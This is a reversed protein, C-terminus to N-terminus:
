QGLGGSYVYTELEVMQNGPVGPKTWTVTVTVIKLTSSVDTVTLTGLGNPISALGSDVFNGSPPISAFATTRITQMQNDAIRLAIERYRGYKNLVVSNATAQFLVLTVGIMFLTIVIEIITFGKQSTIRASSHHNKALM